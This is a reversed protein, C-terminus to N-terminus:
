KIILICVVVIVAVAICIGYGILKIKRIKKLDMPQYGAPKLEKECHPCKTMHDLVNKGCHPCLITHKENYEARAARRKEEKEARDEYVTNGKKM